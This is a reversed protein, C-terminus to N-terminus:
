HKIYNEWHIWENDVLFGWDNSQPGMLFLTTCPTGEKLTLYHPSTGKRFTIYGPGRWFTKSSVVNGNADYLPVTEYYGGKLIITGYFRWPHSHFVPDDSLLIKHLTLNIPFSKRDKLFLYYRILYPLNSSRDLIVRVRGLKEFLKHLM